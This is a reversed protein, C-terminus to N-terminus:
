GGAEGRGEQRLERWTALLCAVLIPSLKLLRQMREGNLNVNEELRKIAFIKCKPLKELVYTQSNYGGFSSENVHLLIL